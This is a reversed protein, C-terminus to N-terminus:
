LLDRIFDQSHTRAVSGSRAAARRTTFNWKGLAPGLNIKARTGLTEVQEALQHLANMKNYKTCVNDITFGCAM